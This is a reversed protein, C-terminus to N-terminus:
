RRSTEQPKNRHVQIGVIRYNVIPPIVQNWFGLKMESLANRIKFCLFLIQLHKRPIYELTKGSNKQQRSIALLLIPLELSFTHLTSANHLSALTQVDSIQLNKRKCWGGEGVEWIIVRSGCGWGGWWWWKNCFPGLGGLNRYADM